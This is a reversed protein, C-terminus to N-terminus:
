MWAQKDSLGWLKRSAGFCGQRTYFTMCHDGSPVAIEVLDNKCLM